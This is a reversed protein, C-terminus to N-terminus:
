PIVIRLEGTTTKYLQNVVLNGALAAANTDFEPLDTFIVTLVNNVTDQTIEIQEGVLGYNSLITDLWKNLNIPNENNLESRKGSVTTRGDIIVKKIAM